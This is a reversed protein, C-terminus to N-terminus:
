KNQHHTKHITTSNRVLIFICGIRSICCISIKNINVTTSKLNGISYIEWQHDIVVFDFERGQMQDMSMVEPDLGAEKLKALYPSNNDGVFGLTHGKLKELLHIKLM